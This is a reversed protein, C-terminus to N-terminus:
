SISPTAYTRKTGPWIQPMPRDCSQAVSTVAETKNLLIMIPERLFRAHRLVKQVLNVAGPEVRSGTM